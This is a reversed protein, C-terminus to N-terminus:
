NLLINNKNTNNNNNKQKKFNDINIKLQKLVDFSYSLKKFKM